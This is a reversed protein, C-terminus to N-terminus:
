KEDEGFVYTDGQEMIKAEAEILMMIRKKMRIYKRVLEENVAKIKDAEDNANKIIADAKAFAEKEANKIITSSDAFASETISKASNNAREIIADAEDNAKKYKANAYKSTADMVAAAMNRVEDLSNEKAKYEELRNLMDDNEESLRINEVYLEQYDAYIDKVFKEVEDCSYGHFTRKFKQNKIDRPRFM